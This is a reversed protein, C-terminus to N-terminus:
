RYLQPPFFPMKNASKNKQPKSLKIKVVLQVFLSPILVNQVRQFRLKM